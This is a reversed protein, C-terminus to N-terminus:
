ESSTLIMINQSGQFLSYGPPASCQIDTKKCKRLELRGENVADEVRRKM